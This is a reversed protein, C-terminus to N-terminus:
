AEARVKVLSKLPAIGAPKSRPPEQPFTTVNSRPPTPTTGGNDVAALVRAKFMIHTESPQPKLPPALELGKALVGEDTAHWPIISKGGENKRAMCAAKLFSTADAPREVVAAQVADIVIETGYDKVLRGVFAGCQEKPMGQTSLLSKGAAWLEDKTMATPDKPSEDKLAPPEGGTGIPVSSTGAEAGTREGAGTRPKPPAESPSTTPLHFADKYRSFFEPKIAAPMSQYARKVSKVQNDNVKLEEGIQYKAMEHVFVMDSDEDFTCFDGEILRQLGKSAGESGLGTEHAIYMLPCNFVGTMDSTPCTMLYLAVIQAEPHGRLAKGSKGIWFKPSVKGYDRM